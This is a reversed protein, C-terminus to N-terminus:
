LMDLTDHILGLLTEDVCDYVLEFIGQKDNNKIFPDAGHLILTQITQNSVNEYLAYHLATDGEIDQVNIDTNYQLLLEILDERDNEIAIILATKKRGDVDNPKAGLLLLQEIEKYSANNKIYEHIILPKLPYIM